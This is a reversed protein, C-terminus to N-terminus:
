SVSNQLQFLNLAAKMIVSVQYFNHMDLFDPAVITEAIFSSVFKSYDNVVLFLLCVVHRGM